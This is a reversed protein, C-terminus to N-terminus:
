SRGGLISLGRLIPGQKRLSSPSVPKMVEDLDIDHVAGEATLAFV